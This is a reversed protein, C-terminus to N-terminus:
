QQQANRALQMRTSTLGAITQAKEADIGSVIQTTLQYAAEYFKAAAVLDGRSAADGAEGLTQRLLITNAQRLVAENIATDTPTNQAPAVIVAALTLMLGLSISVAKTM